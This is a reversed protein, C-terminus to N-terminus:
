RITFFLFFDCPLLLTDNILLSYSLFDCPACSKLNGEFETTTTESSGLNDQAFALEIMDDAQSEEPLRLPPRVQRVLSSESSSTSATTIQM